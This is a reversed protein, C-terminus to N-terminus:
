VPKAEPALVGIPNRVRRRAVTGKPPYVLKSAEVMVAGSALM